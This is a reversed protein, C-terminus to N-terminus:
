ARRAILHFWPTERTREAAELSVGTTGYIEAEAAFGAARLERLAEGLTVHHVLLGFDYAPSVLTAWGDGRAAAPRARRFARARRPLLVARRLARRPDDWYWRPHWPPRGAIRDDLNHTSYAVLGGPLLVRQIEALITHRDGHAVGDIGNCSFFVLGFAGDPFCSLDRADCHEIRVDPFRARALAVTEELYDIGIYDDSLARLVPVTRGAGIGIDLVAVGAAAEALRRFVVAEGQDFPGERAAFQALIPASSWTARNIEDLTPRTDVVRVITDRAERNWDSGAAATQKLRRAM